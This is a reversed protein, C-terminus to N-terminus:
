KRLDAVDLYKKRTNIKTFQKKKSSIIPTNIKKFNLFNQDIKQYFKEFVRYVKFYVLILKFRKSNEINDVSLKVIVM